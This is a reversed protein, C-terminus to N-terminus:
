KKLKKKLGNLAEAAVDKGGLGFALGLAIALMATIGSFIIQMFSKAIGLQELIALIAFVWIAWKVISSALQSYGVKAKEISVKVLKEVIDVIIVTVVFILAAVIVNPLYALVDALFGAFQDSGLIEVSWTLFTLVLVWKIVGGVFDSPHVTIEAKDLATKWNGKDLIKNFRLKTLIQAILSGVGIAIFWGVIFVVLAFLLTPLFVLTNGWVESLAKVTAQTFETM